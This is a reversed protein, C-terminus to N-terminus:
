NKDHVLGRWIITPYNWCFYGLYKCRSSLCIIGKSKNYLFVQKNKLNQSVRVKKWNSWKSVIQQKEYVKLLTICM